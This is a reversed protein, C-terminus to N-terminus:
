GYGKLWEFYKLRKVYINLFRPLPKQTEYNSIVSKHTKIAEELDLITASDSVQYIKKGNPDTTVIPYKKAAM